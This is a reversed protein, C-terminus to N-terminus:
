SVASSQPGMPVDWALPSLRDPGTKRDCSWDQIRSHEDGGAASRRDVPQQAEGRYLGVSTHSSEKIWSLHILITV